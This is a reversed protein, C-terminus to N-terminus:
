DKEQKNYDSEGKSYNSDEKHSDLEEKRCPEQTKKEDKGICLLIIAVLIPSTFISLLICLGVNRNREKAMYGVVVYISILVVIILLFIFVELKDYFSDDKSLEERQDRIGRNSYVDESEVTVPMADSYSPSGVEPLELVMEAEEEKVHNYDKLQFKIKFAPNGFEDKTKYYHYQREHEYAPINLKRTKGPKISVSKYFEEYDLENGSMDLYTIMFSVNKVEENTNNKLALTGKSDLWSQEYSVMTIDKELNKKAAFASMLLFACVLTIFFRKTTM